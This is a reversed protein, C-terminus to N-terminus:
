DASSRSSLSHIFSFLGQYSYWDRRSPDDHAWITELIRLARQTCQPRIKSLVGRSIDRIAQRDAEEVAECGAAFLLPGISGAPSPGPTPTITGVTHIIKHTLAQVTPSTCPMGKIRREIMIRAMCIYAETSAAFGKVDTDSLEERVGPYFALEGSSDLVVTSIQTLAANLNDAYLDFDHQTLRVSESTGASQSTSLQWHREWAAAGIERLLVALRTPYSFHDDCVDLIFPEPETITGLASDQVVCQGTVLGSATLSTLAELSLYWRSLFTIIADFEANSGSMSLAGSQRISALIAKAGNAHARWVGPDADASWFSVLCLMLSTALLSAKSGRDAHALQMQSASLSLGVYKHTTRDVAGAAGPRLSAMQASSFAMTAYLLAPNRLALPVLTECFLRQGHRSAIVAGSAQSVFHHLLARESRQLWCLSDISRTLRPTDSRSADHRRSLKNHRRRAPRLRQRQLHDDVQCAM